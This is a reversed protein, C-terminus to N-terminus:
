YYRRRQRYKDSNMSWLAEYINRGEVGMKNVLQNSFNDAAYHGFASLIGQSPPLGRKNAEVSGLLMGTLIDHNYKRHGRQAIGFIDYPNKIGQAKYSKNQMSNMYQQWLRPSDIQHNVSKVLSHNIGPFMMSTFRDHSQRFNM